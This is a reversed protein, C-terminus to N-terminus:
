WSKPSVMKMALDAASIAGSPDPMSSPAAAHEAHEEKEKLVKRRTQERKCMLCGCRDLETDTKDKLDDPTSFVPPDYVPDPEMVPPPVPEEVPEVRGIAVKALKMADRLEEYRNAFIAKLAMDHGLADQLEVFAYWARLPIVRDEDPTMAMNRAMDRLDAPLKQLAKPHPEDVQLRIPFRSRLAEALDEPQGNMTAVCRFGSHPRVTEGTPLTLKATEPNDCIVHLISKVEDSGKDIENIILPVGERWARLAVGDHWSFANGNPVFHGRIEDAPTGDHITIAYGGLRQGAYSKGTSPRGFLLVHSRIPADLLRDIEEWTMM